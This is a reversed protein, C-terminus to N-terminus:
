RANPIFVPSADGQRARRRAVVWTFVLVVVLSAVMGIQTFEPIVGATVPLTAFSNMNPSDFYVQFQWDQSTSGVVVIFGIMHGKAFTQDVTFSLEFAIPSAGLVSGYSYYYQYAPEGIPNGADDVESMIFAYGSGVTEQEPASMWVVMRVDGRITADDPLPQTIWSVVGVWAEVDAFWVLASPPVRCFVQATVANSYTPPNLDAGNYVVVSSDSNAYVVSYMHFNMVVDNGQSESPGARAVQVFGAWIVLSLGSLLGVILLVRGKRFKPRGGVLQMTRADLGCSDRFIFTEDLLSRPGARAM